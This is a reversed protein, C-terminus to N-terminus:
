ANSSASGSRFLCIMASLLRWTMSPEPPPVPFRKIHARNFAQVPNEYVDNDEDDANKRWDKPCLRSHVSYVVAKRQLPESWRVRPACWDEPSAANATFIRPVGKPIIVNNNRAHVNGADMPTLAVKM